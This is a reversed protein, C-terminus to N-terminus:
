NRRAPESDLADAAGKWTAEWLAPPLWSGSSYTIRNGFFREAQAPDRRNLENIEGEISALNVWPSGEYVFELIQQRDDPKNWKLASPPRRYFIFVDEMGAEFTMQAVSKQSSDWANTTEISRGGMGALGRRQADAVGVMRNQQTWLGTEDQGVFTVPNGVRSTANATVADIRDAHDGGLGGLIRVFTGRDAMLASLPGMAVMSRLPRFTNDVQDESTATLQILPSPHPRGKPEGELYAFEFGCGCGWDSCRYVDGDQAWGDFESPGVAQVLTMSALWPGKGTKQPAVVQARRYRFAQNGLPQGSWELGPAIEGFKAACWFQWDSWIFPKGRSYGDPTICHAKVWAEWLDGLTPFDVIWEHEM